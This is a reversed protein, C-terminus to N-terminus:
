QYRLLIRVRGAGVKKEALYVNKACRACKEAGGGYHPMAASTQHAGQNQRSTGTNIPKTTKQTGTVSHYIFFHHSM